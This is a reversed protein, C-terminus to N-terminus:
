VLGNLFLSCDEEAHLLFLISKSCGVDSSLSDNSSRLSPRLTWVLSEYIMTTLFVVWTCVVMFPGPSVRTILLVEPCPRVSHTCARRDQAM